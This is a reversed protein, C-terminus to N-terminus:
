IVVGCKQTRETGFCKFRECGSLAGLALLTSFLIIFLKTRLPRPANM